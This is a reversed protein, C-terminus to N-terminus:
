PVLVQAPGGVLTVPGLLGSPILTAGQRYYFFNVWARRGSSPRPQGKVFWEPYGKLTRGKDVGRDTGWEFDPPEQEDGILRNCWTNTVALELVNEGQRLAASIDRTFPPHWSVGFDRGNVVVRVLDRVDGLSLHVRRGNALMSADVSVATRYNATGSFYKVDPDRHEALSQLTDLRITKAPGVAPQLDIEWPGAVAIAVPAALEFERRRGSAFVATGHLAAGASIMARGQPDSAISWGSPAEIATLRNGTAAKARFVVFVSKEAGLSLDVETRGAKERWLPALEITGTEANWLEPQMGAVRFSGTFSTAQPNLNAVFFLNTDRDRRQAMRVNEVRPPVIQAAPTIGVQRLAEGVEGRTFLRGRGVQRVTERGDGWLEAAAQRVEDDCQPYGALSPSHDPKPSVVTAGADLLKHIQRIMEPALAGNHPLHVFAYRRGSPLVIQGGEVKVDSLFTRVSIVDGDDQPTGVSVFDAPAEGRQLLTQVRGLYRFFEKGPEFWTQNRGFHTGWWGMGMGPKFRDDFPQHVWHHLVMRNVGSAFQADGVAKIYAPTETWRSLGPAGTFAEAGIVRRGAARAAGVVAPFARGPKGLWFEVMPLDALPAGEVTSFPGSYPEFQLKVGTAHIMEAAPQWGHDFYLAAIVERYDYEFRATLEASGVIRVPKDKPKGTVAAGMTVLWPLPDYGKRKRFEERFGPTWNQYGAEYSDILFHRFSRGYLSGLQQRLPAIVSEWHFRTQMLSMKDAELTRGLVDDPVPHPAAGTSAHGLRYVIWQGPPADWRLEGAPSLRGTLDVVDSVAIEPREAPVALVAVDRFFSLKRDTKGWGTFPPIAPLPLSVVAATGGTITLSSWVLRQM